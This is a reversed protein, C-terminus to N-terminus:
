NIFYMKLILCEVNKIYWFYMYFIIVNYICVYIIYICIHIHM